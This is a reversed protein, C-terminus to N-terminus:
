LEIEVAVVQVEAGSGIERRCLGELEGQSGLNGLNRDLTRQEVVAM